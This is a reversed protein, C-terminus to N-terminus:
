ALEILCNKNKQLYFNIKIPLKQEKDNFAETLNNAYTYIENNTLKMIRKRRKKRKIM